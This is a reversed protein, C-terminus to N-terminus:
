QPKRFKLTMRDTEGIATMKAIRAAKVDEAEDRGGQLAPPLRWVVETDTPQDKPNANIESAALFEFGAAKMTEIVYSQKMYGAHGVSAAEGREESGRHQVIGVIGGPKLATYMDKLGPMLFDGKDEFRNLHHIARPLLFVDVSGKMADPFAGLATATVVASGEGRWKQGDEAWTGAWTKREERFKVARESDGAVWFDWMAINYDVGIVTGKEGLYNILIKSYWGGGPLVEAVTMGPTVGFFELTEKPNRYQYRAKVADDQAALAKDMMAGSFKMMKGEAHHDMAAPGNAVAAGASAMLAAAAVATLLNRM